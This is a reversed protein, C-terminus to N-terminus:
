KVLKLSPRGKSIKSISANKEEEPASPITRDVPFSMGQGNEKAYIAMVHSIPVYIERPVGAFRAKFSIWENDLQLEQCAEPSINLIIEDNTVYDMPVRVQGAVFVALYPTFGHDVCWQHLARVLYPKTSPVDNM